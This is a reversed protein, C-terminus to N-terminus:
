GAMSKSSSASWAGEGAGRAHALALQEGEALRCVGVFAAQDRQPAAVLAVAVSFV